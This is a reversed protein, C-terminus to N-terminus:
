EEDSVSEASVDAASEDTASEDTASEDTNSEDLASSDDASVEPISEISEDVPLEKAIELTVTNGDLYIVVGFEGNDSKKASYLEDATYVVDKFGAESLKSVYDTYDKMEVDTIKFRVYYENAAIEITRGAKFEPVLKALENGSPWDLDEGVNITTSTEKSVESIEVSEDGGFGLLSCGCLSATLILTTIIFCLSRFKM